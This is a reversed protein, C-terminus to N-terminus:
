IIENETRKDFAEELREPAPAATFLSVGVTVLVSYVMCIVGITPSLGIGSKVAAGFSCDWGNFDYGLVITLVVTIVLTGIISAWVAPIM